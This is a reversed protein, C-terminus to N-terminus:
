TNFIHTGGGGRGSNGVSYAIFLLHLNYFQDQETARNHWVRQSGMAQLMGPRGTGWWRKSNAWTWTWQMLSAMWGDWGRIGEEGEERLREWCWPSKWHTMQKGWIVLISSSWCWDKLSYEPNTERLISQYSRRATWSVKMLRRWCWLEFADIRQCGAKKVALEWLQVQGSPFDYGQNYPGKDASYQRQKEVCQRPKDDSEQWSATTKQNWAANM